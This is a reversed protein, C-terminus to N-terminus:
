SILIACACTWVPMITQTLGRCWALGLDDSIVLRFSLLLTLPDLNGSLDQTPSAIRICCNEAVYSCGLILSYCSGAAGSFLGKAAVLATACGTSLSVECYDATLWQLPADYELNCGDYHSCIALSWRVYCSGLNSIAAQCGAERCGSCVARLVLMKVAYGKCVLSASRSFRLM